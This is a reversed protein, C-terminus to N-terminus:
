TIEKESYNLKNKSNYLLVTLKDIYNKSLKKGLFGELIRLERDKESEGRSKLMPFPSGKKKSNKNKENNEFIKHM